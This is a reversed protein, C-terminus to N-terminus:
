TKNKVKNRNMLFLWAGYGTGLVIIIVTRIIATQDEIEPPYPVSFISISNVLAHSIICPIISKGVYFVAVYCFGIASAYLLQRLTDFLPAGNLLNVIHGFGFTLSSVLVAIKLNSEAMGRFLLGRFILEELFGVFCMSIVYMLSETLSYNLGVGNWFNTSTIIIVPIFFLFKKCNGKFGCLGYYETLRNKKIFILLLITLLLAFPITILKPIGINESVADSVSMGVVYIVIWFVAFMTQDKEFLKKMIDGRIRM